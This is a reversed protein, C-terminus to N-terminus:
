MGTLDMRRTGGFPGQRMPKAKFGTPKLKFGSPKPKFGLPKLKFGPLESKFGGPKTGFINLESKATVGAFRETSVKFNSAFIFYISQLAFFVFGGM